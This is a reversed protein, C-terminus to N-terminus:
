FNPTYCKDYEDYFAKLQKSPNNKVPSTSKECADLLTAAATFDSEKGPRFFFHDNRKGIYHKLNKHLTVKEKVNLDLKEADQLIEAALASTSKALEEDNQIIFFSALWTWFSTQKEAQYQIEALIQILMPMFLCVEGSQMSRVHMLLRNLKTLEKTFDHRYTKQLTIYSHSEVLSARETNLDDIIAQLYTRYHLDTLSPHKLADRLKQSFPAAKVIASAEIPLTTAQVTSQPAQQILVGDNGDTTVFYSRTPFHRKLRQKLQAQDVPRGSCLKYVTRNELGDQFLRALLDHVSSLPKVSDSSLIGRKSNANLGGETLIISVDNDAALDQTDAVIQQGFQITQGTLSFANNFVFVSGQKHDKIVQTIDLQSANNSVNYIPISQANTLSKLTNSLSNIAAAPTNDNVVLAYGSDNKKYKPTVLVNVQKQEIEVWDSEKKSSFSDLVPWYLAIKLTENYTGNTDTAQFPVQWDYQDRTMDIQHTGRSLRVTAQRIDGPTKKFTPDHLVTTRFSLVEDSLVSMNANIHDLRVPYGVLISYTARANQYPRNLRPNHVAFTLDLQRAGVLQQPQLVQFRIPSSTDTKMQASAPIADVHSSQLPKIGDSPLLLVQNSDPTPMTHSLSLSPAPNSLVAHVDIVEGYEFKRSESRRSTWPQTKSLTLGDDILEISNFKYQYRQLHAQNTTSSYYYINGNLGNQGNVLIGRPQYGDQGAVGSRGGPIKRNILQYEIDVHSHLHGHHHHPAHHHSSHHGPYSYHCHNNHFLLYDNHCGYSLYHAHYHQQEIWVVYEHPRGGLGGAGGKGAVGHRGARGGLGGQASLQLADLLDTDSEDYYISINGGNKGPTGSTGPTANGGHGGPGGNTGAIERNFRDLYADEGRQGPLGNQGDVGNTGNIGNAGNANILTVESLAGEHILGSGDPTRLQYRQDATLVIKAAFTKQGFQDERVDYRFATM